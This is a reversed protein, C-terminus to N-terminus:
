HGFNEKDFLFEGLGPGARKLSTIMKGLNHISEVQVSETEGGGSGRVQEDLYKAELFDSLHPDNNSGALGHLNLLCTNVFQISETEGGRKLNVKELTLAAEMAEQLTGWEDKEPKKVENLVVRGGRQNQYKMLQMAHEREENSQEM